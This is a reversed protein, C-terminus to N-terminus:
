APRLQGKRMADIRQSLSFNSYSKDGTIEYGDFWAPMNIGHKEDPLEVELLMLGGLAPHDFLDFELILGGYPISWRTKEIAASPSHAHALARYATADIEVEVEHDAFTAGAVPRKMTLHYRPHFLTCSSQRVRIVWGGTDAVYHQIIKVKRAAALVDQPPRAHLRFRREIELM